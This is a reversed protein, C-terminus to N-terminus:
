GQCCSTPYFKTLIQCFNHEEIIGLDTKTGKKCISAIISEKWEEPLENKNWIPFILKHNECRITKGGAKIMELSMQDIGSSRRSKLKEIALEVESASPKPVLPEATHIKTQRVNNVGQVNL